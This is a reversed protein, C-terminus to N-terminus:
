KKKKSRLGLETVLKTYRSQNKRWLYDLLKRRKSVLQLLGRRSHNDKKHIGFHGMLSNIRTTLLSVQVEVSGTDKESSGVSKIIEAKERAGFRM